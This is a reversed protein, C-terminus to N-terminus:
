HCLFRWSFATLEKHRVLLTLVLSVLLTRTGIEALEVSRLLALIYLSFDSHGSTNGSLSTHSVLRRKYTAVITIPVTGSDSFAWHPAFFLTGVCSHRLFDYFLLLICTCFWHSFLRLYYNGLLGILSLLLKTFLSYRNGSCCQRCYVNM